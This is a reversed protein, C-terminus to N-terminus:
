FIVGVVWFWKYVWDYDYLIKWGFDEWFNVKGIVLNFYIIGSIFILVIIGLLVIICDKDVFLNGDEILVVILDFLNIKDFKVIDM